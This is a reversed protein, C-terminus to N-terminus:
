GGRIFQIFEMDRLRVNARLALAYGSGCVDVPNSMTPFM